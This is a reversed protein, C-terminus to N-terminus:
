PVTVTVGAERTMTGMTATAHVVASVNPAYSPPTVQFTAVPATGPAVSTFETPGAPVATWGIPATSTVWPCSSGPAARGAAVSTGGTMRTQAAASPAAVLGALAVAAAAAAPWRVRHGRGSLLVRGVSIGAM